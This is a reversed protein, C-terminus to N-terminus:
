NRLAPQLPMELFGALRGAVNPLRLKDMAATELQRIREKSVGFMKGVEQLTHVRGGVFGYRLRIITRQRYNLRRLVETIRSRLLDQHLNHLPDSERCDALLKGLYNNDRREGIPQDLSVPPHGVTLSLCTEGVSLEAAAATEEISPQFGRAQVLRAAATQVKAMRSGMGTPIRIFRSHDAIARSIGQRIWWTAYTSFKYGRTHDFRDVARMLGANGEQILDLFSMGRNAYQKAVSVTLRLNAASLESRAAEYGQQVDVMHRVRGRLSAPTDLVIQMLQALEKRLEGARSRRCPDAKMRIVQRSLNDLRRSHQRLSTLIPLLHQRRITIGELLSTARAYRAIMRQSAQRRLRAPRGRASAIVFDARNKALLGQLVRIAPRLMDLIRHKEDTGSQALEVVRDIRLNGQCVPDLLTVIAQLGHGTALNERYLQKRYTDLRTALAIEGDRTLLPIRSIEVFYSQFSGVDHTNM